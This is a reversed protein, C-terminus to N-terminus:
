DSCSVVGVTHHGAVPRSDVRLDIHSRRVVLGTHRGALSDVRRDLNCDLSCDPSDVVPSCGFNDVVPSHHDVESSPAPTSHSWRDPMGVTDLDAAGTDLTHIEAIRDLGAEPMRAADVVIRLGIGRLCLSHGTHVAAEALGVIGGFALVLMDALDRDVKGM